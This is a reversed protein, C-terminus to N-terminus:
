PTPDPQRHDRCNGSFGIFYRCKAGKRASPNPTHISGDRPRGAGRGGKRRGSGPPRRKRPHRGHFSHGAQEGDSNEAGKKNGRPRRKCVPAGVCTCFADPGEVRGRRGLRLDAANDTHAGTGGLPQFQDVPFDFPAPNGGHCETLGRLVALRGVADVICVGPFQPRQDVAVFAAQTGGLALPEPELGSGQDVIRLVEFPRDVFPPLRDARM